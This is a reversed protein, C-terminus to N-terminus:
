PAAMLRGIAQAHARVCHEQYWDFASRGIRQCDDSGLPQAPLGHLYHAGARLGDFDGHTDAFLVPVMGHACYANFVSSKAVFRPPYRTLGFRANALLTQLQQTPLRGHRTVGHRALADNLAADPLPSGIDHLAIGQARSWAFVGDGAARWTLMRLPASGFVLATAAHLGQLSTAEGVTSCIALRQQPRGGAHRRLWSESEEINTLWFDSARALQSAVLRQLPSLWFASSNPPGSAYLEHFFVGFRRMRPRHRRLWRLLHVPAGRKAYGYGSYHLLVSAGDLPLEEDFPLVRAPPTMHAAVVQAYDTVGGPEKTVIM